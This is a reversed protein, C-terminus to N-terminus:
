IHITMRKRQTFQSNLNQVDSRILVVLQAPYQGFSDALHCIIFLALLHLVPKIGILLHDFEM